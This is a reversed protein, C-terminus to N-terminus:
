RTIVFGHRPAVEELARKLWPRGRTGPHNVKKVIVVQGDLIFRLAKKRRPRIVHPRTGDHVFGAYQASNYVEGTVILGRESLRVQNNHRLNGTRVPTLVDARNRVARLTDLVQRRAVSLGIRNVAAGNITLHFVVAV